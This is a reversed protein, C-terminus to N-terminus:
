HFLFFIQRFKFHVFIQHIKYHVYIQLFEFSIPLFYSSIKPSCLDYPFISFNSNLFFDSSIQLSCLNACFRILVLSIKLFNSSNQLLCLDYSLIIFSSTLVDGKLFYPSIHFSCLELSVRFFITHFTIFISPFM